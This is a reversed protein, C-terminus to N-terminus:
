FNPLIIYHWCSGIPLSTYRVQCSYPKEGTHVRAHKKFHEPFIFTAQCVECKIPKEGTHVAKIHYDLQRRRNFEKECDECKYRKEDYHTTQKHAEM